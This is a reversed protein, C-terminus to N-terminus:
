AGLRFNSKFFICTPPITMWWWPLFAGSTKCRAWPCPARGEDLIFPLDIDFWFSSGYGPSSELSIESGMLKVLATSIALGLGTGGYKRTSSSDGQVFASFIKKQKEPAIGIGTDTVSLRLRVSEKGQSLVRVAITVEGKETFKVANNIINLLVQRLRTWDGILHDPVKPAVHVIVELNKEYAMPVINAVADFVMDRLSFPTPDLYMKGNEIKSFDLIDNLVNLLNNSSSKITAAMFAQEQNLNSRLLLDAMGMVGNLPTRIEHSINVWFDSKARSANEADDKAKRMIEEMQQRQTTNILIGGVGAVASEDDILPFIFASFTEDPKHPFHLDKIEASRRSDMVAIEGNLFQAALDAPLIQKDNSGVIEAIDKNVLSSFCNNALTYEHASNKLFVGSDTNDMLAQLERERRNVDKVGARVRDELDEALVRLEQEKKDRQRIRQQLSHAGFSFLIIGLVWLGGHSFIYINAMHNAAALGPAMPVSVSQGGVLDGRKVGDHCDGCAPDAILPRILRMYEEGHMSVRTDIETISRDKDMIELSEAEWEDSKNAPRMPKNASTHGIIGSNLETTEVEHVLRIMYESNLKTLQLSPTIIDRGRVDLYPNPMTKETIPVYVGGLRMSWVRYAEDKIFATRAEIRANEEAHSYTRTLGFWLSIGLIATWLAILIGLYTYVLTVSSTEKSLSSPRQAM